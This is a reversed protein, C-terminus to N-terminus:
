PSPGIGYALQDTVDQSVAHGVRLNVLPTGWQRCECIYVCVARWACVCVCMYVLVSMVGQVCM